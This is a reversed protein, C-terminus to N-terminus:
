PNRACLSQCAYANNMGAILQTMATSNAAAVLADRDTTGLYTQLASGCPGVPGTSCTADACFCSFTSVHATNCSGSVDSFMCEELGQCAIKQAGEKSSCVDNSGGVLSLVCNYCATTQCNNCFKSSVGDCTEGPELIGDGCTPNCQEGPSVFGSGGAEPCQVPIFNETLSCSGPGAITGSITATGGGQCEFHVAGDSTEVFAFAATGSASWTVTQGPSTDATLTFAVLGDLTESALGLPIATPCTVPNAADSADSVTRADVSAADAADVSAADHPAGADLAGADPRPSACIGHHGASESLCAARLRHNRPFHQECCRVEDARERGCPAGLAAEIAVVEQPGHPSGCGGVAAVGSLALITRGAFVAAAGRM